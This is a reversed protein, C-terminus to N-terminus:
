GQEKGRQDRGFTTPGIARKDPGGGSFGRFMGKFLGGEGQIVGGGLSRELGERSAQRSTLILISGRILIIKFSTELANLPINIYWTPYHPMRSRFTVKGTISIIFKSDTNPFGWNAPLIGWHQQSNSAPLIRYLIYYPLHDLNYLYTLICNYLYTLGMREKRIGIQWIILSGIVM